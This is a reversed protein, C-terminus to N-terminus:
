NKPRLWNEESRNMFLSVCCAEREYELVKEPKHIYTQTRYDFWYRWRSEFLLGYGETKLHAFGIKEVMKILERHQCPDAELVLYDMWLGDVGGYHNLAGMFRRYMSLGNLGRAYLASAPEYRLNEEDVWDWDKNVYPLNAVVVDFHEPYRDFELEDLLNSQVLEVRGEHRNDNEEAIMLIRESVDTAVVDAQAYELALTIAICGSGTGIELFRPKEPLKLEKILDILSETEPRPILVGPKVWFKRGYFEKEGLVYALPMNKERKAVMKDAWSVRSEETEDEGHAALWSRDAGQPAFVEVAILEADLAEIRKKAQKLWSDIKMGVDYRM